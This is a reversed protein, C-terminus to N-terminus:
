VRDQNSISLPLPCWAELIAAAQPLRLVGSPPTPGFLLRVATCPDTEFHPEENTTACVASDGDVSLRIAGNNIRIIVSGTPLAMAKHRQRLLADVTRPWNFVQWNCSPTVNTSEAIQGLRRSLASPLSSFKFRSGDPSSEVWLRVMQMGTDTDVAVLERVEAGQTDAVLYGVVRGDCNHAVHPRANSNRLFRSFGEADRACYMDQQDHIAKAAAITATQEPMPELTIRPRPERALDHQINKQNLHFVVDVGALEWGFYRYRQRQGGLASLDYRDLEIQRLADAMLRQMLGQGRCDPHTSVGGIGAIRLRVDGVCWQLPFVGVVAVIRGEHRIALNCGMHEDNRQYLAPLQQEFNHRGHEDFALNLFSIAEDFDAATLRVIQDTM